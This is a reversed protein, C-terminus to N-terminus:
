EQSSGRIENRGPNALGPLILNQNQKPWRSDGITEFTKDFETAM